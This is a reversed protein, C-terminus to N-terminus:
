NIMASILLKKGYPNHLIICNEGRSVKVIEEENFLKCITSLTATTVSLSCIYKNIEEGVQLNAENLNVNLKFSKEGIVLQLRKSPFADAVIKIRDVYPKLRIETIENCRSILKDIATITNGEINYDTTPVWYVYKGSLFVFTNMEKLYNYKFDKAFTYIVERLSKIPICCTPFKIDDIFVINSNATANAYFKGNIFVPDTEYVKLEKFIGSMSLASSVLYKLRGTEMTVLELSSINPFERRAEYEKVFIGSFTGQEIYVAETSFTITIEDDTLVHIVKTLYFSIDIPTYDNDLSTIDFEYCITYENLIQIKLQRGDCLM